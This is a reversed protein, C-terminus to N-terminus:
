VFWRGTYRIDIRCADGTYIYTNRGPVARLFVGQFTNLSNGTDRRVTGQEGDVVAVAPDTLLTDSLSFREGTEQHVIKIDATTVGRPPTFMWIIPVDVSSPNNVVMEAGNKSEKFDYIITTPQVAYRFPDALMVTVTIQSWRQKFGKVYKHKIRSVGSVHYCRDTRGTYLWYDRQCLYRYAENLAKDHDDETAEKFDFLINLTRGEVCGDGTVHAGHTFARDQMKLRFSHEGAAEVAWPTPLTYSEGNKLVVKLNDM